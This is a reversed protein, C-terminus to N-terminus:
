VLIRGIAIPIPRLHVPIYLFKALTGYLGITWGQLISATPEFGVALERGILAGWVSLRAFARMAPLVLIHFPCTHTIKEGHGLPQLCLDAFGVNM